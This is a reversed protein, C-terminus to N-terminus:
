SKRSDIRMQLGIKRIQFFNDSKDLTTKKTEISM